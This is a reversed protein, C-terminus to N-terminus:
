RAFSLIAVTTRYPATRPQRFGSPTDKQRSQAATNSGIGGVDKSPADRNAIISAHSPYIVYESRALLRDRELNERRLPIQREIRSMPNRSRQGIKNGVEDAHRIRRSPAAVLLSRSFDSRKDVVVEINRRNRMQRADVGGLLRQGRRNVIQTTAPDGIHEGQASVNHGGAVRRRELIGLVKDHPQGVLPKANSRRSIGFAMDLAGVELRGDSM